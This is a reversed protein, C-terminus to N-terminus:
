DERPEVVRNMTSCTPCKFRFPPEKDAPLRIRSDCSHCRATGDEDGRVEGDKLDDDKEVEDETDAWADSIIKDQRKRSGRRIWLILLGAFIWGSLMAIALNAANVMPGGKWLVAETPEEPEHEVTIQVTNSPISYGHGDDLTGSAEIRLDVTGVDARGVPRISLSYTSSAGPGVSFVTISQGSEVLAWEPYMDLAHEGTLLLFGTVRENGNNTVLVTFTASSNWPLEWNDGTFEISIIPNGTATRAPLVEIQASSTSFETADALSTATFNLWHVGALLDANPNCTVTYSSAPAGADLTIQSPHNCAFGTPGTLLLTDEAEGRNELFLTISIQGEASVQTATTAITSRVEVNPYTATINLSNTVTSDSQSTGTLIMTVDGQAGTRRLTVTVDGSQSQGLQITQPSISVDFGSAGELSLSFTDVENGDNIVTVTFSSDALSSVPLSNSAVLLRVEARQNVQAELAVTDWIQGNEPNKAIITFAYSGTTLSSDIEVLIPIESDNTLNVTTENGPTILFGPPVGSWDLTANASGTGDNTLVMTVVAPSDSGVTFTGGLPGSMRLSSWPSIDVISTFNIEAHGDQTSATFSIIQEGVFETNTSVFTSWSLDISEGSSVPVFTSSTNIELNNASATIRISNEETGLNRITVIGSASNGPSIELSTINELYIQHAAGILLPYSHTYNHEGIEEWAFLTLNCVDGESASNSINVSIDVHENSGTLLRSGDADNASLTGTCVGTSSISYISEAEASGANHVTFTVIGTGNPLWNTM